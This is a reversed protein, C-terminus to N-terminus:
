RRFGSKPQQLTLRSLRNVQYLHHRCHAALFAVALELTMWGSVPHRFVGKNGSANEEKKLLDRLDSRISLWENRAEEFTEKGAPQAEVPTGGPVKVRVPMYMVAVVIRAKVQEAVSITEPQSLRGSVMQIFAKEVQCLHALVDLASWVGTAPRTQLREASWGDLRSLLADSTRDLRKLQRAVGDTM